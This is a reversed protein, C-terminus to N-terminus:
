ILSKATNCRLVATSKGASGANCIAKTLPQNNVLLLEEIKISTRHNNEASEIEGTYQLERLLIIQLGVTHNSLLNILLDTSYNKRFLGTHAIDNRIKNLSKFDLGLKKVNLEFQDCFDIMKNTNKEWNLSGLVRNLVFDKDYGEPLKFDNIIKKFSVKLSDLDSNELKPVKTKWKEALAEWAICIKLLRDELFGKSSSNINTVTSFFIKKKKENWQEYIALTKILYKDINHIPICKYTGFHCDVKRRWQEKLLNDKNYYLQRNFVVDNGLALSFLSTIDNAKTLYDEETANENELKLICGELQFDWNKSKIKTLKNNGGLCTIKWGDIEIDLNLDYIGVLPFEAFSIKSLENNGFILDKFSSFTVQNGEINTILLNKASVKVKDEIEGDLKWGKEAICNFGFLFDADTNVCKIVTNRPYYCIEFEAEFTMETASFVGNGNKIIIEPYKSEMQM